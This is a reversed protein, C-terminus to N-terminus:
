PNEPAGTKGSGTQVGSHVHTTFRIDNIIADALMTVLQNFTVEGVVDMADTGGGAKLTIIVSRDATRIIAGAPGYVEIKNPDTPPSWNKNGVPFFVLSSLNAPQSLDPVGSGLGDVNYIGADCPFVVGLTGPNGGSPAQIPYRIYEPGFVPITVSPLQQPATNVEFKVTVISGNVAVVSCPLAQGQRQIERNVVDTSLRDLSRTLQLKQANDAM